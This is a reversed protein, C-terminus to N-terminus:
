AKKKGRTTPPLLGAQRARDVYISAMRSKVGFFKGVAQTPARDINRRYVEAVTKLLDPTISRYGEPRRLSGVFRQAAYFAPPHDGDETAGTAIGVIGSGPSRQRTLGAFLTTVFGDVEMSRLDRQRIERQHPNSLWELRVLEPVGNRVEIRAVNDPGNYGHMTFEAWTPVLYDDVVEYEGSVKLIWGEDTNAYTKDNNM